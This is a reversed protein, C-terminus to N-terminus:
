GSGLKNSSNLLHMFADNLIRGVFSAKWGSTARQDLPDSTGGSGFAKVINKM